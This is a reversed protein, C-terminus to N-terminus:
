GAVPVLIIDRKISEALKYGLPELYKVVAGKQYQYKESLGKDELMIVPRYKKITEEGGMLAFLEYGEIDLQILDCGKLALDDIRITPVIGEGDVFYAGTNDREKNTLGVKILEHTQGFAVHLPVINDETVNNMLCRFNNIEPEATYVVDFQAALYKPWTGVNGGAQVAVGKHEVYALAREVDKVSDIVVQHCHTDNEPFWYGRINKQAM